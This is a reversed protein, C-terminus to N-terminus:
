GRGPRLEYAGWVALLAAYVWTQGAFPSVMQQELLAFVGFLLVPMAVSMASISFGRAQALLGALVGGLGLAMVALALFQFSDPMRGDRLWLAAALGVSTVVFGPGWLTGRSRGAAAAALYTLGTLTPFWYFPITETEILAVIVVAGVILTIGRARRASTDDRSLSGDATVPSAGTSSTARTM